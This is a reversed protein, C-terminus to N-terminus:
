GSHATAMQQVFQQDTLETEGTTSTYDLDDLVDFWGDTNAEFKHRPSVLVSAPLYFRKVIPVTESALSLYSSGTQGDLFRPPGGVPPFLIGILDQLLTVARLAHERVDSDM